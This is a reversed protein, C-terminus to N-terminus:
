DDAWLTVAGGSGPKPADAEFVMKLKVKGAPVQVDSTQRYREVGLFSYSHNLSSQDDVWLAFGGIFDANALLM